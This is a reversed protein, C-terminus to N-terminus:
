NYEVIQYWGGSAFNSIEIDGCTLFRCYCNESSIICNPMYMPSISINGNGTVTGRMISKITGRFKFVDTESYCRFKVYNLTIYNDSYTDVWIYIYYTTNSALTVYNIVDNNQLNGYSNGYAVMLVSGTSSTTGGLNGNSSIMVRQRRGSSQDFASAKTTIMSDGLLRSPTTYSGILEYNGRNSNYTTIKNFPTANTTSVGNSDWMGVLYTDLPLFGDTGLRSNLAYKIEDWAM